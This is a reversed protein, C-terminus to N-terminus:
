TLLFFKACVHQSVNINATKAPKQQNQNFSTLSIHKSTLLHQSFNNKRSTTFACLECCFKTATKQQKEHLM